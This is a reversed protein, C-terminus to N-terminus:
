TLHSRRTLTAKNLNLANTYSVLSFNIERKYEREKHRLIVCSTHVSLSAHKVLAERKKKCTLPPKVIVTLVTRVYM